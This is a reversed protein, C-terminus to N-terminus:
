QIEKIIQAILGNGMLLQVNIREIPLAPQFDINVLVRGNDRDNVMMTSTDCVVNFAEEISRGHLGGLQYIESLISDFQHTINRWLEASFADFTLSQGYTRAARLLVALLRNVSGQRYATDESTTVDSM